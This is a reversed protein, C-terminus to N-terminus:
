LIKSIECYNVAQVGYMHFLLKTGIRVVLIPSEFKGSGLQSKFNEVCSLGSPDESVKFDKM